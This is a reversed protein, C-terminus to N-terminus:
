WSRALRRELWRMSIITRRAVSSYWRGSEVWCSCIFSVVEAERRCRGLELLVEHAKREQRSGFSAGITPACLIPTWVQRKHQPLHALRPSLSRTYKHATRRTHTHADRACNSRQLIEDKRIRLHLLDKQVSLIISQLTCPRASKREKADDYVWIVREPAEQIDIKM